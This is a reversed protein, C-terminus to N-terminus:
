LKMGAAFDGSQFQNLSSATTIILPISALLYAAYGIAQKSSEFESARAYLVPMLTLKQGELILSPWLYDNYQAGFTGVFNLLMIPLALPVTLYLYAQVDGAGDIMASEYISSPQQEFFPRLLFLAGAQGGAIVPLWIAFYSNKLHFTDAMMPYLTSMGLISPVLLIIVYLKFLFEKGYFRKRSFIYGLVSAFVINFFAGVFSVLISNLMPMIVITFANSYNYALDVFISATPLTFIGARVADNSKLSNLITLLLPLLSFLVSFAVWLYGVTQLVANDQSKLRARRRRTRPVNQLKENTM